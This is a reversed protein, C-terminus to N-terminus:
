RVNGHPSRPTNDPHIDACGALPAAGAALLLVLLAAAALTKLSPWHDDTDAKTKAPAAM